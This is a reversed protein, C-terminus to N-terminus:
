YSARVNIMYICHKVMNFSVNVTVQRVKYNGGIGGHSKGAAMQEPTSQPETM